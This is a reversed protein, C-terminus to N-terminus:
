KEMANRLMPYTELCTKVHYRSVLVADISVYGLAM